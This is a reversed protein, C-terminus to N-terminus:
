DAQLESTAAALLAPPCSLIVVRIMSQSPLPYSQLGRRLTSFNVENKLQDKEYCNEAKRKCIRNEM